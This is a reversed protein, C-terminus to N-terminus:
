YSGLCLGFDFVLDYFGFYCFWILLLGAVWFVCFIRLCVFNLGAFCFLYYCWGDVWIRFLWWDLGFYRFLVVIGGGVALLGFDVLVVLGNEFYLYFICGLCM